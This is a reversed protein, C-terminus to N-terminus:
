DSRSLIWRLFTLQARRQQPPAEKIALLLPKWPGHLNGIFAQTQKATRHRRLHHDLDALLSRQQQDSAESRCLEAAAHFRYTWLPIRGSQGGRPCPGGTARYAPTIWPPNAIPLDSRFVTGCKPCIAPAYLLLDQWQQAM